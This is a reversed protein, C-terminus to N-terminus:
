QASMLPSYINELPIHSSHEIISKEPSQYQRQRYKRAAMVSFCVVFTMVIAVSLTIAVAVNSTRSIGRLLYEPGHTQVVTCSIQVYGQNLEQDPVAICMRYRREPELHSVTYSRLLHNVKITEYKESSEDDIKYLIQYDPFANRATGNWVVTVFTSSVGLPWIHLDISDVFLQISNIAKGMKNEAVCTYVGSDRPKLHFIKLSGPTKLQIHISNSTDNFVDGNPLIWHIKPVPIGLARCHFFYRDGIKKHLTANFSSFGLLLPPCEKNVIDIDIEKIKKFALNEPQACQLKESDLLEIKCSNRYQLCQAFFLQENKQKFANKMSLDVEIKRQHERHVINNIMEEQLALISSNHLYLAHLMPLSLFAQQDVFILQRNCELHIERVNPLDWFAGKDIFVLEPCNDIWIQEVPSHVFDGMQLQSLKNAGINLYRLRKLSQLAESPVKSLLNNNLHMEELAELGVFANNNIGTIRNDALMLKRLGNLSAFIGGTLHSISNGNLNLVHLNLISQFLELYVSVIHNNEVDLYRLNELGDFAHENIYRLQGNRMALSELRKLGRFAGAFLSKFKNASLDLHRLHTFNIFLHGHGLQNLQNYSLDLELLHETDVNQQQLDNINNHSLDLSQQDWAVLKPISHLSAFSCNVTRVQERLQASFSMLCICADPCTVNPWHDLLSDYATLNSQEPFPLEM